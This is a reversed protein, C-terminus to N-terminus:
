CRFRYNYLEVLVVLLFETGAGVTKKTAVNRTIPIVTQSSTGVSTEFSMKLILVVM